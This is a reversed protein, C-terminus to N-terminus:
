KMNPLLVAKETLKYARIKLINFLRRNDPAMIQLLGSEVRIGHQVQKLEDTEKGGNHALANRVLRSHWVEPANLCDDALPQGFFRAADAVITTIGGRPKYKAIGLALRICERVFDEYAVYIAGFCIRQSGWIALQFEHSEPANLYM